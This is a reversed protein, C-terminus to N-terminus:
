VVGATRLAEIDASSYGAEALVADTHEGVTAPSAVATTTLVGSADRMRIPNAPVPVGDIEVITGRAVNHPDTVVQPGVNVAGVAAGLPGLLDVWEAAPRTAFVDGLQEVLMAQQDDDSAVTDALEPRGLGACLARWTRPEAAAVTVFRGDACLYLRRNANIPVGGGMASGTFGGDLGGALWTAAETLSIDLQCGAGTTARELLAAMIGTAAFVAGIPVALMARPQWPLSPELAGLLGSHATYTIDHGARDANPGDQGFGTISCWILGPHDAAAHPYGYGRQELEGPNNNEVLVDVAGCLRALVENARAHRMNLTASRKAKGLGVQGVVLSPQGTASPSELRIVDAGLDALVNTCYAGPPFRTLDLVRTGRLPGIPAGRGADSSM